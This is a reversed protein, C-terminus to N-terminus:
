TAVETRLAPRVDARASDLLPLAWSIVPDPAIGRLCRHDIPCERRYCPRCADQTEFVRVAALNANTKAVSTPGFFVSCPVGFAAAVHRAGADNCVLLALLRVLAKLGGTDLRGSLDVVPERMGAAVEACVSAEAATGILVSRAGASALADAVRAFHEAPWRKAPGYAAGPVLGVLLDRDVDIGSVAFLEAVAAEESPTTFLKTTEDDAKIGLSEILHLVSRERAVMRRPGWEALPPVGDHLLPTRGGRRYGVVHRVRALRMLAASSFSDPLCVGLDFRAKRHLLTAEFLLARAGRHYSTVPWVRDVDPSGALLPELGPRIQVTIRAKPFGKRLAHLGPTSMVVDGLWNPARVLIERVERAQGKTLASL